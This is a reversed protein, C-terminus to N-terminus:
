AMEVIPFTTPVSPVANKRIGSIPDLVIVYVKEAVRAAKDSIASEYLELYYTFNFSTMAIANNM